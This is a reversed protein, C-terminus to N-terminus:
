SESQVKCKKLKQLEKGLGTRNIIQKSHENLFYIATPKFGTAIM